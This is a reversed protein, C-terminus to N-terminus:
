AMIQVLSGVHLSDATADFGIYAAVPGASLREDLAALDTCQHIFGRETLTKLFESKPTSM